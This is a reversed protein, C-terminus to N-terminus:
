YHVYLRWGAPPPDTGTKDDFFYDEEGFLIASCIPQTKPFGANCAQIYLCVSLRPGQHARDVDRLHKTIRRQLDWRARRRVRRSVRRTPMTKSSRNYLLCLEQMRACVHVSVAPHYCWQRHYEFIQHATPVAGLDTCERLRWWRPPFYITKVPTHTGATM